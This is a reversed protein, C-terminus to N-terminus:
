DFVMKYCGDKEFASEVDKQYNIYVKRVGNGKNRTMLISNNNIIKYDRGVKYLNSDIKSRIKATEQQLKITEDILQNLLDIIIKNFRENDKM